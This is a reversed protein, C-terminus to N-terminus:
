CDAPLQLLATKNATIPDAFEHAVIRRGSVWRRCFTPRSLSLQHQIRATLLNDDLLEFAM